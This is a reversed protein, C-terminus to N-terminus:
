LKELLLQTGQALGIRRPLSLHTRQDLLDRRVESRLAHAVRKLIRVDHATRRCAADEKDVGLYLVLMEVLKCVFVM